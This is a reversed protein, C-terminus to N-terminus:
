KGQEHPPNEVRSPKGRDPNLIPGLIRIVGATDFESEPLYWRTLYSEIPADLDIRGDEVRGDATLVKM